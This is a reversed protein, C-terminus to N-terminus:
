TTYSMSGPFFCDWAIGIITVYLHMLISALFMLLKLTYFHIRFHLYNLQLNSFDKCDQPLIQSVKQISQICLLQHIKKMCYCEMVFVSLFEVVFGVM